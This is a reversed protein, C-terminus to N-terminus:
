QTKKFALYYMAEIKVTPYMVLQPVSTTAMLPSRVLYTLGYHPVGSYNTTLWPCGGKTYASTSFTNYVEGLVSPRLRVKITNGKTMDFHVQKISGRQLFTAADVPVQAGYDERDVWMSFNGMIAQQAGAGNPDLDPAVPPNTITFIVDVYGFKYWRYLNTFDSETSVDQLAFQLAGIAGIYWDGVTTNNLNGMAITGLDAHRKHFHVEHSGLTRTSRIQPRPVALRRRPATRRYRGANFTRRGRPRRYSRGYM